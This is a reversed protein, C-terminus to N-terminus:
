HVGPASKDPWYDSVSFVVTGGVNESWYPSAVDLNLARLERYIRRAVMAAANPQGAAIARLMVATLQEVHM